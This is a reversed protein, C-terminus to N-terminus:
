SNAYGFGKNLIVKNDKVVLATGTFNLSKLYEYIAPANTVEEVQPTAVVVKKKLPPNVKSTPHISIHSEAKTNKSSYYFYGPVFTIIATTFFLILFRKIARNRRRIRYVELRVDAMKRKVKRKFM